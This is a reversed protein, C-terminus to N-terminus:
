ALESLADAADDLSNLARECTDELSELESISERISDRLKGVESRHTEIRKTIAASQETTLLKM